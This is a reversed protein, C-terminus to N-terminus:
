SRYFADKLKQKGFRQMANARQDALMNIASLGANRGFQEQGQQMKQRNLLSAIDFQRRNEELNKRAQRNQLGLGIGKYALDGVADVTQGVGGLIDQFGM